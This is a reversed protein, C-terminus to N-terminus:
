ESDNASDTDDDEASVSDLQLQTALQEPSFDVSDCALLSCLLQGKNDICYLGHIKNDKAALWLETVKGWHLHLHFTDTILNLWEGKQSFRPQSFLLEAIAGGEQRVVGRL